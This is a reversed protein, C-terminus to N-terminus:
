PMIGHRATTGSLWHDRQWQFRRHEPQASSVPLGAAATVRRRDLGRVRPYLGSQCVAGEPRAPCTIVVPHVADPPSNSTASRGKMDEREVGFVRLCRIGQAPRKRPVETRGVLRTPPTMSAFLTDGGLSCREHMFFQDQRPEPRLQPRYALWRRHEEDPATGEGCPRDRPLRRCPCFLPQYQNQRFRRATHSTSCEPALWQDRFFM